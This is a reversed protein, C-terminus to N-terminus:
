LSIFCKLEEYKEPKLNYHVLYINTKSNARKWMYM